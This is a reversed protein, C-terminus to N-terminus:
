HFWQYLWPHSWPNAAAMSASVVSAALLLLALGRVIRSRFLADLAPIMWVLWYPYLWFVWRLGSTMGGYNRDYVPQRVYFAFVIITLALTAFAILRIRYRSTLILPVVGLLSFLFVPTLSLVGHHGVTMNLLYTQPDMEGLDVQSKRENKALWYSGEFDYWNGWRRVAYENTKPDLTIVLQNPRDRNVIWRKLGVSKEDFGPAVVVPSTPPIKFGITKSNKEIVDFIGAPLLGSNLEKEYDGQFSEGAVPGDSRCMYPAKWTGYAVRDTGVFAAAVIAAAPVTLLLTKGLSRVLALAVCIALWGTAPLEFTAALAATFGLMTFALWGAQTRWLHILIWLSAAAFIAGQLHNNLTIAFTTLSTGFAATAVIFTQTLRRDTLSGAIRSVLWILLGLGLANNVILLTRVVTFLDNSFDKNAFNKILWYQGALLTPWLPPKSSYFHMQGDPGALYVKDITDWDEGGKSNVVADIVYTQNDGLARVTCWRSRDNASLFPSDHKPDTSHVVLIRAAVTAVSCVIILWITWRHNRQEARSGINRDQAIPANSM